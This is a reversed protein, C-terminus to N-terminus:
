EKNNMENCYNLAKDMAKQDFIINNESAFFVGGDKMEWSGLFGSSDHCTVKGQIEVAPSALWTKHPEAAFGHIDM